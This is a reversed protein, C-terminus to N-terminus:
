ERIAAVLEGRELQKELKKVYEGCGDWWCRLAALFTAADGAHDRYPVIGMDGVAELKDLRLVARSQPRFGLEDLLMAYAALQWGWSRQPRNSTKYDWLGVYDAGKWGYLGCFDPSGAFRRRASFLHAEVAIPRVQFQQSWRAYCRAMSALPQTVPWAPHLGLNYLEAWRHFANGLDAAVGAVRDAEVEGVRERYDGLEPKPIVKLVTTVSPLLGVGPALYLRGLSSAVEPLRTSPVPLRSRAQEVEHDSIPPATQM